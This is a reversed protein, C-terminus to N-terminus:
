KDCPPREVPVFEGCPPQEKGEDRKDGDRGVVCFNEVSSGESFACGIDISLAESTYFVTPDAVALLCLAGIGGDAQIRSIEIEESGAAEELKEGLGAGAHSFIGERVPKETRLAVTFGDIFDFLAVGGDGFKAATQVEAFVHGDGPFFFLQLSADVGFRQEFPSFLRCLQLSLAQAPGREQEGDQGNGSGDDPALRSDLRWEQENQDNLREDGEGEFILQILDERSGVASERVQM